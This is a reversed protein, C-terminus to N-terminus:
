ADLAWRAEVDGRRYALFRDDDGSAEFAVTCRQVAAALTLAECPTGAAGAPPAVPAFISRRLLSWGEGASGGAAEPAAQLEVAVVTTGAIATVSVVRVDVGSVTRREGLGPLQVPESDSLRILQIGGAVLIALGCVLATLIL